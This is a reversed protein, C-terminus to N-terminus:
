DRRYFFLHNPGTSDPSIPCREIRVEGGQSTPGLEGVKTFRRGDRALAVVPEKVPFGRELRLRLPQESNIADPHTLQTLELVSLGHDAGRGQTFWFPERLPLDSGAAPDIPGLTDRAQERTVLRAQGACSAHGELTVGPVLVLPQQGPAPFPKYDLPRVTTFCITTAWWNERRGGGPDGSLTRTQVRAMLRNLVGSPPEGRTVGRTRVEDLTGQRILGADFEEDSVILVLRDDFETVQAAALNKPISAYVPKGELAWAEGGKPPPEIWVGRLLEASVEYQESCALLACYRRQNGKNRVRIHFQPEHWKGDRYEYLLRIPSGELRRGAQIIELEITSSDILSRKNTLETITLWRSIHELQQVVLYADAASTGRVAQSLPRDERANTITYTNNQALLRLRAQGATDAERVYRGQGKPREALAARVVAVGTPDGELYVPVPPLPWSIVVAKYTTDPDLVDGQGLQVKSRGFLVEEVEVRCLAKELERMQEVPADFLYVALVTKEKETPPDIGHITGGDIFWGDERPRYALTFYPPSSRLAGFLFEKDLDETHTAELQPNQESDNARVLAAARQFLDRYTLRGRAAHLTDLLMSSFAGCATPGEGLERAKEDSRCAALLVHRGRPLVLWGSVSDADTRLKQLQEQTFVYDTLKRTRHDHSYRRVRQATDAPLARTGSGSHCSDLIVVVDAGRDAVEALLFALEKDALDWTGDRGPSPRSDWCVLTEDLGDPELYRFEDATKQQSGHGSFYFLAVDNSGAGALHTRFAQIINPRTAQEDTLIKLHLQFGENEDKPVHERLYGAFLEVDRVCGKLKFDETAPYNNIGVLLAHLHRSM